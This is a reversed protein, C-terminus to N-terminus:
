DADGDPVAALLRPEVDLKEVDPAVEDGRAGLEGLKRATVMVRSEVSGIVSNYAKVSDRLQKGLTGLHAAVIAIREYLEVGLKRIEEANQTMAEQRWGYEVAKLLAILTTPTAIVVKDKMADEIVAPDREVAAYLFAEGPLFMVVFEPSQAFQNWYGRQALERVRARVHGAHADLLVGRRQEDQCEAAELFKDLAVKADIVISRRAPLHVVMDPRYRGDDDRDTVSLQECFDCRESMGALEVLRRLTLEGWPGRTTPRRLATVLQTTQRELGRGIEGLTGLQEILKSYGDQRSSEIQALRQQYLNVSEQLPRVLSEIQAKREDLTGSAQTALQEFRTSALTLFSDANSKLADQSLTAFSERMRELAETVSQKQQELQERAADREARAAALDAEATGCRGALTQAEAARADLQQRVLRLESAAAALEERATCLDEHQQRVQTAAQEHQLQAQQAQQEALARATALSATAARCRHAQWLYTVLGGISAGLLAYLWAM